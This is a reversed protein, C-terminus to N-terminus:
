NWRVVSYEFVHVKYLHVMKLTKPPRGLIHM